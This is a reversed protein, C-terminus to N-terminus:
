GSRRAGDLFLLEEIRQLAVRSGLQLAADGNGVALGGRELPGGAAVPAVEVLARHEPDAGDGHEAHQQQQRDEVQDAAADADLGARGPRVIMRKLPKSRKVWQSVALQKMMRASDPRLTVKPLATSSGSIPGSAKVFMDIM